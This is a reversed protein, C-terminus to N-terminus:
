LSSLRRSALSHLPAAPPLEVVTLPRVARQQQQRRTEALTAARILARPPSDSDSPLGLYPQWSGAHLSPPPPETPLPLPHQPLCQKAFETLRAVEDHIKRQFFRGCLFHPNYFYFWAYTFVLLILGFAGVAVSLTIKLYTEDKTTVRSHYTPARSPFSSPAGSPLMTEVFAVRYTSYAPVVPFTAGLLQVNGLQAAHKKVSSAFAGTSIALNIDNQLLTIAESPRTNVYQYLFTVVITVLRSAYTIPVTDDAPPLSADQSFPIKVFLTTSSKNTFAAAISRLAGSIVLEPQAGSVAGTVNAFTM